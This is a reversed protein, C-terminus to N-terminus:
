ASIEAYFSYKLVKLWFLGLRRQSLGRSALFASRVNAEYFLNLMLPLLADVCFMVFGTSLAGLIDAPGPRIWEHQVRMIVYIQLNLAHLFIDAVFRFGAFPVSWGHISYVVIPSSVWLLSVKSGHRGLDEREVFMVVTIMCAMANLVLLKAKRSESCCVSANRLIAIATFCHIMTMTAFVVSLIVRFPFAADHLSSLRTAWILTLVAALLFSPVRCRFGFYSAFDAELEANRFTLQAM